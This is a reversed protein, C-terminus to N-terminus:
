LQITYSKVSRFNLKPPIGSTGVVFIASACVCMWDRSVMPWSFWTVHTFNRGRTFKTRRKSGSGLCTNGIFVDNEFVRGREYGLKKTAAVCERRHSEVSTLYCCCPHAECVNSVKELRLSVSQKWDYFSLCKLYSIRKYNLQTLCVCVCVCVCVCM